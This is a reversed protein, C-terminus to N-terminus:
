LLLDIVPNPFTYPKGLQTYYENLGIPFPHTIKYIADNGGVYALSDNVIKIKTLGSFSPPFNILTNWTFGSDITFLIELPKAVLGFGNTIFDISSIKATSFLPYGSIWYIHSFGIQNFIM